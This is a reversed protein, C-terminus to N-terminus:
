LYVAITYYESEGRQLLMGWLVLYFQSTLEYSHSTNIFFRDPISHEKYSKQRCYSYQLRTAQLM